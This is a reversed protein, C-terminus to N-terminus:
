RVPAERRAEDLIWRRFAAVETRDSREGPSVLYYSSALPLRLAFPAVLRGVALDFAAIQPMGLAVGVGDAAADLALSAHNFRTGHAFDVGDVGAAELWVQWLPRGDDSPVNDHILVHNRLDRPEHLVREGKILQPSCMPTVSVALLRDVRMGPYDGSGFRISLDADEAPVGPRGEDAGGNAQPVDILRTRANIRVDLGRHTAVFRHLRPALWKAAFTPAADVSLTGPAGTARIQEVAEALRDFGERLRPQCVRGAHTLELGSARRRFLKVGLLEELAKVQHSIAAPTVHLENAAAAFSSLRAAAEFARLSNLPPLRRAL